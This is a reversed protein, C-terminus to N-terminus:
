RNVEKVKFFFFNSKKGINSIQNDQDINSWFARKFDGDTVLGIIKFKEDCVFIIRMKNKIMKKYANSISISPNVIYKLLNKKM